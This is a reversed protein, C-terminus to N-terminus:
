VLFQPQSGEVDLHTSCTTVLRFARTRSALGGKTSKRTRTQLYTADFIDGRDGGVAGALLTTASPTPQSHEGANQYIFPKTVLTHIRKELLSLMMHVGYEPYHVFRPLGKQTTKM